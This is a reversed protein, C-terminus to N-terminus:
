GWAGCLVGGSGGVFGKAGGREGQCPRSPGFCGSGRQMRCISRGAAPACYFGAKFCAAPNFAFGGESELDAM